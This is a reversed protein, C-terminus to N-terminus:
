YPVVWMLLLIPLHIVLAFMFKRLYSNLEKTHLQRIDMQNQEPVLRVDSYGLDQLMFLM